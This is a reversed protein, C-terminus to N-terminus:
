ATNALKPLAVNQNMRKLDRQMFALSIHTQNDVLECYYILGKCKTILMHHQPRGIEYVIDGIEYKKVTSLM